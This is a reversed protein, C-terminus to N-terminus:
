PRWAGTSFHFPPYPRLREVERAMAVAEVARGQGEMVVALNSMVNINGPERSLVFNFVTRGAAFQWAGPTCWALRTTAPFSSRIKCSRRARGGIPRTRIAARWLNPPAITGRVHGCHNRRRNGWARQMFNPDPRQLGGHAAGDRGDPTRTSSNLSGMTLNVHGSAFLVNGSRTWTEETYVNHFRVPLAGNERAFAATMIVLSLCNGARADFAEKPQVRTLGRRLRAQACRAFVAYRGTRPHPRQHAIRAHHRGGPLKQMAPSLSFIEAPTLVSVVPGFEADRFLSEAQPIPQVSACGGLWAAILVVLWNKM